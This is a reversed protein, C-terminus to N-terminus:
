LQSSYLGMRRTASQTEELVADYIATLQEMEDSKTRVYTARAGAQLDLLQSRDDLLTQLTAALQASDRAPVRLGNRGHDVMEKLGGLDSVIVPTGVSLAETVVLPANEYWISPVVLVDLRALTQPVMANEIPGHFQIRKNTAAIRRLDDAYETTLPGGYIDLTPRV